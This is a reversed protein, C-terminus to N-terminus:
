TAPKASAPAAPQGTKPDINVPESGYPKNYATKGAPQADAVKTEQPPLHEAQQEAKKDEGKGHQQAPAQQQSPQHATTRQQKGAAQQHAQHSAHKPEKVM